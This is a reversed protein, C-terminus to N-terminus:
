KPFLVRVPVEALQIEVVGVHSIGRDDALVVNGEGKLTRTDKSYIFKNARINGGDFIFIPPKDYGPCLLGVYELTDGSEDRRGFLVSQKSKTSTADARLDDVQYKMSPLKSFDPIFSPTGDVGINPQAFDIDMPPCDSCDTLVFNKLVSFKGSAISLHQFHDCFSKAVVTLSYEGVPLRVSYGGDVKAESKFHGNKGTLQVEAYAIPTNNSDLIAGTLRVLRHVPPPTTQSHAAFTSVSLFILFSAFRRM